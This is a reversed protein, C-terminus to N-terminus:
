WFPCVTHVQGALAEADPVPLQVSSRTVMVRMSNVISRGRWQALDLTLSGTVSCSSSGKPSRVGEYADINM